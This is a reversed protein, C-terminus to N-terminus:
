LAALFLPRRNETRGRARSSAKGPSNRGPPIIAEDSFALPHLAALRLMKRAKRPAACGKRDPHEGWPAGNAAVEYGSAASGSTGNPTETLSRRWNAEAAQRTEM